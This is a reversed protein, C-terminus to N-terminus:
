LQMEYITVFGLKVFIIKIRVLRLHFKLGKWTMILASGNDSAFIWFILIFSLIFIVPKLFTCFWTFTPQICLMWNQLFFFFKASKLFITKSTKRWKLIAILYNHVFYNLENSIWSGLNICVKWLQYNWYWHQFIKM